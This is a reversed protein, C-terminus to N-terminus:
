ITESLIRYKFIKQVFYFNNINFIFNKNLFLKKRSSYKAYGHFDKFLHLFIQQFDLNKVEIRESIM